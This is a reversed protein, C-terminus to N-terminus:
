ANQSPTDLLRKVSVLPEPKLGRHNDNVCCEMNLGLFEVVSECLNKYEIITM